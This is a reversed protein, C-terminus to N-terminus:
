RDMSHSSSSPKSLQLPFHDGNFGWGQHTLSRAHLNPSPPLIIYLQIATPVLKSPPPPPTGLECLGPKM